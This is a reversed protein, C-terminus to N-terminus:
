PSASLLSSSSIANADRNLLHGAKLSASDDFSTPSNFYVGCICFIPTISNSTFNYLLSAEHSVEQNSSTPLAEADTAIFIRGGYFLYPLFVVTSSSDSDTTEKIVGVLRQKTASSEPPPIQM